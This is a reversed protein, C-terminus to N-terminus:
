FIKFFERIKGRNGQINEIIKVNLEKMERIELKTM